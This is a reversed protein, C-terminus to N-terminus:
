VNCRKKSVSCTKAVDLLKSLVEKNIHVKSYDFIMDDFSISFEEFRKPNSNFLEALSTNDLQTKIKKLEEFILERKDNM